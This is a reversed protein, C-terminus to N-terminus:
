FENKTLISFGAREVIYETGDETILLDGVSTSRSSFRTDTELITPNRWWEWDIHNTESFATDLENTDVSAVFNYGMVKWFTGPERKKLNDLAESYGYNQAMLSTAHYVKIM